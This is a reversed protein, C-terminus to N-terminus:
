TKLVDAVADCLYDINSSTIGAVNIRGGTVIYISKEERLRSVQDDTLSSFSFMGRQDKIFSFDQAVERTELGAVLASRMSFIRQCMVKLEEVWQRRLKEDNLITTVILGGHAPPNSYHVRISKKVHSLM